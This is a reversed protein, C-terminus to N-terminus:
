SSFQQLKYIDRDEYFLNLCGVRYGKLAKQPEVLQFLHKQKHSIQVTIKAKKRKMVSESENFEGHM